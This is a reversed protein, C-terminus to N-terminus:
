ERRYNEEFNREKLKKSEYKIMVDDSVEYKSQGNNMILDSLLKPATM